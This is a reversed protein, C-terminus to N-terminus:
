QQPVPELDPLDDDSDGGEKAGGEDDSLDGGMDGGGMGAAPPLPPTAPLPAHTPSGRSLECRRRWSPHPTSLEGIGRGGAAGQGAVEGGM